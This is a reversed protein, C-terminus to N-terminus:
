SSPLKRTIITLQGNDCDHPVVEVMDGKAVDIGPPLEAVENIMVRVHRYHLKVFRKGQLDGAPLASLCKPLEGSAETSIFGTIWAPKTKVNEPVDNAAVSALVCCASLATAIQFPLSTLRLM